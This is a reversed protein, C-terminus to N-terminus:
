VSETTPSCAPLDALSQRRQRNRAAVLAVWVVTLALLTPFTRGTTWTITRPVDLLGVFYVPYFLLGGYNGQLFGRYLLGGIVGAIGFWIMGGVIGFDALVTGYGSPNNFEPNGMSALVSSWDPDAHGSLHGQLDGSGTGPFRWVIQFAEDPWRTDPSLFRTLYIHGNNLATIYYGGLREFAFVLFSGGLADKYYSLWSRSYEFAAFIAFLVPIAITPLVRNVLRDRRSVSFMALVVVIPLALEILALREALLFARLAALALVAGLKAYSRRNPAACMELTTVVVAAPGFQTMTTVGPITGLQDKLDALGSLQSLGVGHRAALGIFAIYGACTLFVLVTSATRLIRLETPKLAPWTARPPIAPALLAVLLAGVAMTLSATTFLMLTHGTVSKPTRWLKRFTSDSVLATAIVAMLNLLLTITVPSLWWVRKVGGVPRM